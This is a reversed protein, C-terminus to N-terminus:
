ARVQTACIERVANGLADGGSQLRAMVADLAAVAATRADADNLWQSL